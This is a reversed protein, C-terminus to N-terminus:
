EVSNMEKIFDSDVKKLIGWTRNVKIISNKLPGKETIGLIVNLVKGFAKDIREYDYGVSVCQLLKDNVYEWFTPNNLIGRAFELDQKDYLSCYRKEYSPNFIWYITQMPEFREIGFNFISIHRQRSITAFMANFNMKEYDLKDNGKINKYFGRLLINMRIFESKQIYYYLLCNLDLILEYAIIKMNVDENRNGNNSNVRGHAVVNRILNNFYFKFYEFIDIHMNEHFSDLKERLTQKEYIEIHTFLQYTTSDVLLDYFLGEIQIPLINIFMGYKKSEFLVLCERLIEKRNDNPINNIANNLEDIISFDNFLKELTAIYINSNNNKKDILDAIEPIAKLEEKVDYEKGQMEEAIHKSMNEYIIKEYLPILKAKYFVILEDKLNSEAAQIHQKLVAFQNSDYGMCISKAKKRLIQNVNAEEEFEEKWWESLYQKDFEIIERYTRLRERQEFNIYLQLFENSLDKSLPTKGMSGKIKMDSLNITNLKDTISDLKNDAKLFYNQYNRKVKLYNKNVLSLATLPLMKIGVQNTLENYYNEVIPKRSYRLIEKKILASTAGKVNKGIKAFLYRGLSNTTRKTFFVDDDESFIKYIYKRIMLCIKNEEM